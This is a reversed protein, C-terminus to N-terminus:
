QVGITVPNSSRGLCTLASGAAVGNPVSVNVQNYGPDGPADDCYLVQALRGGFAVQPAIVGGDVLNTTYWSLAEGAMASSNASAVSKGLWVPFPCCVAKGPPWLHIRAARGCWQTDGAVVMGDFGIAGAHEGGSQQDM